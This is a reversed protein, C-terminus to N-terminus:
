CIDCAKVLENADKFLYPWFLRISTGKCCNQNRWLAKWITCWPMSVLNPTGIPLGCVKKTTSWCIEQTLLNQGMFIEQLWPLVGKKILFQLKNTYIDVWWTTWLIEIGRHWSLLWWSCIRMLFTKRSINQTMGKFKMLSGSLHYAVM